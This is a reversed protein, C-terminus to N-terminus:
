AARKDERSSGKILQDVDAQASSQYDIVLDSCRRPLAFLDPCDRLAHQRREIDAVSLESGTSPM